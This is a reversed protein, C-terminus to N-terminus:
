FNVWLKLSFCVIKFCVEIEVFPRLYNRAPPGDLLFLYTQVVSDMLEKPGNLLGIFVPKLGGTLSAAKPNLLALECFTEVLL